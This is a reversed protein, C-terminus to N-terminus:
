YAMYKFKTIKIIVRIFIRYRQTCDVSGLGSFVSFDWGVGIPPVVSSYRMGTMHSTHQMWVVRLVSSRAVLTATCNWVDTAISRATIWLSTRWCTTSPNSAVERCCRTLCSRVYKVTLKAVRTASISTATSVTGKCCVCVQMRGETVSSSSSKAHVLDVAYSRM